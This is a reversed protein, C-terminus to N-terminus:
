AFAAHVPVSAGTSRRAARVVTPMLWLASSLRTPSRRRAARLFGSSVPSFEEIRILNEIDNRLGRFEDPLRLQDLDFPLGLASRVAGL